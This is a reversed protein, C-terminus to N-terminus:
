DACHFFHSVHRIDRSFADIKPNPVQFCGVVGRCTGERCAGLEFRPFSSVALRSIYFMTRRVELAHGKEKFEEFYGLVETAHRPSLSRVWYYCHSWLTQLRLVCSKHERAEVEWEIPSWVLFVGLAFVKISIGFGSLIRGLAFPLIEKM